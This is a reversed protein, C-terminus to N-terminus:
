RGPGARHAARGHGPLPQVRDRHARLGGRRRVPTRHLDDDDGPGSRSASTPPWRPQIVEKQVEGYLSVSIEGRVDDQRLAILPDQEALQTLALHLAGRDAPNRPVVVTELSPPAFQREGGRNWPDGSRPEGFTDGIRVDPLGRLQGIRGAPLAARPEASGGDFVTIGTIRGGAPRGDTDRRLKLQDRVRLTGRFMRVYANREGAPGREIKFVAGTPPGDVDEGAAPLLETLGNVLVDVGAGTVASGFFVPHVAGRRSQEALAARVRHGTLSGRQLYDALLRDDHRTLVDVLSADAPALPRVRAARTGLGRVTVM